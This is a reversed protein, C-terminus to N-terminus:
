EPRWETTTRRWIPPQSTHEPIVHKKLRGVQSECNLLSHRYAHVLSFQKCTVDAVGETILHKRKNKKDPTRNGAILCSEDAAAVDIEVEEDDDDDDAADDDDVVVVVDADDAATDDADDDDDDSVGVVLAAESNLLEIVRRRGRGEM